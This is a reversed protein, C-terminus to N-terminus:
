LDTMQTPLTLNDLDIITDGASAQHAFKSDQTYTPASSFTTSTKKKRFVTDKKGHISSM